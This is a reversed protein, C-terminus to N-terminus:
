KLTYLIAEYADGNHNKKYVVLAQSDKFPFVWRYELGMYNTYVVQDGDEVLKYLIQHNQIFYDFTNNVVLLDKSYDFEFIISSNATEGKRWEGDKETRYRESYKTSIYKKDSLNQASGLLSWFLCAILIIKKM